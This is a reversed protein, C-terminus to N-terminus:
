SDNYIGDGNNITNCMGNIQSCQYVQHKEYEASELYVQGSSFRRDLQTLRSSLPIIGFANISDLQEIYKDYGREM